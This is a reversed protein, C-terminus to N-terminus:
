HHFGARPRILSREQNLEERQAESFFEQDAYRAPRQLPTDFADTWIGQPDLEAWPTKLLQGTAAPVQAHTSTIPVSSVAGAAAIAAAIMSGPFRNAM